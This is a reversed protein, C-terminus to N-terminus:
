ADREFATPNAEMCTRSTLCTEGTLHPAMAPGQFEMHAPGRCRCSGINNVPTKMKAISFAPFGLLTTAFLLALWIFGFLGVYTDLLAYPIFIMKFAMAIASKVVDAM